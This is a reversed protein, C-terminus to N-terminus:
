KLRFQVRVVETSAVPKDGLAAPQYRWRKVADVAAPRLIPPGSVARAASVKGATDVDLSIVVEGELRIQRAMAPYQAAASFLLKAPTAKRVPQPALMAAKMPTQAVVENLVQPKTAPSGNDDVTLPLAQPAEGSEQVPEAKRSSAAPAGHRVAVQTEAPPSLEFVVPPASTESSPPLPTSRTVEESKPTPASTIPETEPQDSDATTAPKEAPKSKPLIQSMSPLNVQPLKVKSPLSVQPLKVEAIESRHQMWYRIGLLAAALALMMLFSYLARTRQERRHAARNAARFQAVSDVPASSPTFKETKSFNHKGSSNGVPASGTIADALSVFENSGGIVPEPSERKPGGFPSSSAMTPVAPKSFRYSGSDTKLDEQPFQVPWFDPQDRTFEIEASHVDKLVPEISTVTCEAAKGTRAIQLTLKHGVRVNSTTAIVAGRVMVFQTRTEERGGFQDRVIVPLSVAIRVSRRSRHESTPRSSTVENGDFTTNGSTAEFSDTAQPDATDMNNRPTM